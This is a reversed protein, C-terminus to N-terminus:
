VTHLGGDGFTWAYTLGGSSLNIFNFNPNMITQTAPDPEFEAMTPIIFSMPCQSPTSLVPDSTVSLSVNYTGSQTYTHSPNQLSSTGGDGFDWDWAVVNGSSIFSSDPGARSDAAVKHM